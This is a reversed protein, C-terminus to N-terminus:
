AYAEGESVTTNLLVAGASYYTDPEYAMIKMKIKQGIEPVTDFQVSQVYEGPKILGSEGLIRGTEDTIRLKMWVSNEAASTFFVDARNGALKVNGCVYATFSMGDQYIKTYSEDNTDPTGSQASSDFPPPTFSPAEPKKGGFTLTLIMGVLALLCLVSLIPLINKNKM